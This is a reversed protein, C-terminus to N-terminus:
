QTKHIEHGILIKIAMYYLNFTISSFFINIIYEYKYQGSNILCCKNLYVLIYMTNLLIWTFINLQTNMNRSNHLILYKIFLETRQKGINFTEM